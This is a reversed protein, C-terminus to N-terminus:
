VDLLLPPPPTPPSIEANGTYGQLTITALGITHHVLRPLSPSMDVLIFTPGPLSNNMEMELPM